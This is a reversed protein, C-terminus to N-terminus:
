YITAISYYKEVTLTSKAKEKDPMSVLLFQIVVTVLMSNNNDGEKRFVRTKNWKQLM